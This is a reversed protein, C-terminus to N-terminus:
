VIKQSDANYANQFFSLWDQLVVNWAGVHVVPGFIKRPPVIMCDELDVDFANILLYVLSIYHVVQLIFLIDFM